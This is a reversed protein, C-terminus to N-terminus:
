LGLRKNSRGEYICGTGHSQWVAITENDGTQLIVQNVGDIRKANNMHTTIYKMWEKRSTFTKYKRDSM